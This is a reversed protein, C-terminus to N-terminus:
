QLLFTICQEFIQTKNKRYDNEWIILIDDIDPHKKLIDIKYADEVWIEQPTRQINNPYNIMDKLGYSIPNAHWYDGYFEIGKRKEKLFFDLFYTRKKNNDYVYWEHINNTYFIRIYGLECLHIYLKDFLENAIESYPIIKRQYHNNFAETAIVVDGNSRALFSDFTHGKMLNLQTYKESGEIEGYKEIFYELQCGAYRQRDCYKQWKLSGLEQGHRRILNELTVARSKNYEQFQELTWGYKKQKYEFTNTVSQKDCYSKWRYTGETEGYKKVLNELTIACKRYREKSKEVAEDHSYGKKHQFYEVTGPTHKKVEIIADEETLGNQIWWNKNRETHYNKPTAM